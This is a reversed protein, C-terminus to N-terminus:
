RDKRRFRPGLREGRKRAGSVGFVAAIGGGIMATSISLYLWVGVGRDRALVLWMFSGWVFGLLIGGLLARWRSPLRAPTTNDPKAV